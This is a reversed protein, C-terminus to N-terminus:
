KPEVLLIGGCTLGPVKKGRVFEGDLCYYLKVFEITIEVVEGGVRELLVKKLGEFEQNYNLIDFEDPRNLLREWLDKFKPDTSLIDFIVNLSYIGKRGRLKKYLRKMRGIGDDRPLTSFISPEPETRSCSSLYDNMSHLDYLVSSRKFTPRPLSTLPTQSIILSSQHRSDDLKYDIESNDFKILTFDLPSQPDIPTSNTSNFTQTTLSLNTHGSLRPTTTSSCEVKPISKISRSSQKPLPKPKVVNLTNRPRNTQLSEVLKPTFPRKSDKKPRQWIILGYILFVLLLTSFVVIGIIILPSPQEQGSEERLPPITPPIVTPISRSSMIVKPKPFFIEKNTTQHTLCTEVQKKLTAHRATRTM